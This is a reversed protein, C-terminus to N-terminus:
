RRRRLRCDPNGRESVGMKSSNQVRQGSTAECPLHPIQLLLLHHRCRKDKVPNTRWAIDLLSWPSWLRCIGSPGRVSRKLLGWLTPANPPREEKNLVVIARVLKEM